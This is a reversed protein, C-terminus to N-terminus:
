HELKHLTDEMQRIRNLAMSINPADRDLSLRAEQLDHLMKSCVTHRQRALRQESEREWHKELESLRDRERQLQSEVEDLRRELEQGRTQTDNLQATLHLNQVEVGKLKSVVEEKERLTESVTHRGEQCEHELPHAFHLSSVIKSASIKKSSLLKSAERLFSLSDTCFAKGGDRVSRRAIAYLLRNVAGIRLSQDSESALCVFAKRLWEDSYRHSNPQQKKTDGAKIWDTLLSWRDGEQVSGSQSQPFGIDVAFQSRLRNRIAIILMGGRKSGDAMLRVGLRDLSPYKALLQLVAEVHDPRVDEAFGKRLALLIQSLVDKKSDAEVLRGFLGIFEDFVPRLPKHPRPVPKAAPQSNSSANPPSDPITM